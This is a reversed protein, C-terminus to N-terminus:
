TFLRANKLSLAPYQGLHVEKRKKAFIYRHIFFKSGSKKVSLYLGDGDSLTYPKDKPELAKIKKDNLKMHEGCM